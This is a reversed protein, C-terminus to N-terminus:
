ISNTLNSFKNQQRNANKLTSEVSENECMCFLFLTEVNTKMQTFCDFTTKMQKIYLRVKTYLNISWFYAIFEIYCCLCPISGIFILKSFKSLTAPVSQFTPRLALIPPTLVMMQLRNMIKMTIMLVRQTMM